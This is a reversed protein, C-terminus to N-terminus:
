LAMGQDFYPRQDARFHPDEAAYLGRALLIAESFGGHGRLSASFSRQLSLEPNRNFVGRRIFLIVVQHLEGNQALGIVDQDELRPSVVHQREITKTLANIQDRIGAAVEFNLHAAAEDMDNKLGAILEPNRGELFLRVQKVIENYERAPIEHSCPALCRNMKFNLCPRERQQLRRSKCKRLKFVRDIIRKTSRM